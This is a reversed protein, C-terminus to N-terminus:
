TNCKATSHLGIIQECAEQIEKMSINAPTLRLNEQGRRFFILTPLGLVGYQLAISQEISVDVKVLAIGKKKALSEISPGLLRCKQCNPSWFYAAALENNLLESEFQSSIMKM